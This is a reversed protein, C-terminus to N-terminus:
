PLLERGVVGIAGGVDVRTTRGTAPRVSTYSTTDEVHRAHVLCFHAGSGRLHVHVIIGWGAAAAM